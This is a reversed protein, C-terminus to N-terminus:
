TVRPPRSVAVRLCTAVVLLGLGLVSLRVGLQRAVPRFEFQVRHKGDNVACGLFDGNVRVIAVSQGDVTATWGLDFSETTVLLQTTANDTQLVMRGPVDETISVVGPHKNDALAPLDVFPEAIASHLDFSSIEPLKEAPLVRTVFRARPATPTIALWKAETEAANSNPVLAWGVGALQLAHRKHYNLRKAPELGAYGDIRSLGSLLMRNGTRLKGGPDPAVIRNNAGDPPLPIAAVYDHLRATRGYVSYSLGYVGLDVATFLILAVVSGRMGREVLVILLAATAILMPGAWVLAPQAVFEPWLLPGFAALGIAAAVVILLSRTVGQNATSETNQYKAFLLAASVAAMAALCFQVLVIGRCPFRFRNALPVLSQLRYLGGFEGAALLVAVVTFAILGKILPRYAGWHKSCALLWLCLVLPVAGIYLGLEHTNQGVVRTQFLFPAVFQVLNLLHMSGSKAFEADPAQRVSEALLHRTPLLQVAGILFGAGIAAAITVLRFPVLKQVRFEYICYAAVALLTFWVYQPYGLLLQSAVLIAIGFEAGIRVRPKHTTAAIDIAWLIWPLHAIVAIANPHIFHLLSFGGFTFALAGFLAADRRGVLRRFFLYMGAFLLPYSALLEINFAAGLPLTRYLLWHWPHYAGLQGEASIYFGGYLSPMWDFSEGHALQRAYFDRVPLHFEGLDDAVYVQGLFFPTALAALLGAAALLIWASYRREPAIPQPAVGATEQRPSPEVLTAPTM